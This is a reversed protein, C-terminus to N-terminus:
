VTLGASEMEQLSSCVRFPLASIARHKGALTSSVAVEGLIEEGIGQAWMKAPPLLGEEVPVYLVTSCKGKEGVKSVENCVCYLFFFTWRIGRSSCFLLPNMYNVSSPSYWFGAMICLMGRATMKRDRGVAPGLDFRCYWKGVNPQSTDGRGASQGM